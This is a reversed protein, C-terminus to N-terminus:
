GKFDKYVKEAIVGSDGDKDEKYGVARGLALLTKNSVGGSLKIANIANGNLGIATASKIGHQKCFKEIGNSIFLQDKDFVNERRHKILRKTEETTYRM